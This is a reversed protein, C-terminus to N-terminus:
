AKYVADGQRAKDVVKLGIEQGKKAEKVNQHNVQMSDIKQKLNTTAGEISIMDGVKLSSDVKIVAVGINSYYHTVEGLKVRKIGKAQKPKAAKRAPAKAAKKKSAKKKVAKARSGKLKKSAKIKSKSAKKAKKKAM